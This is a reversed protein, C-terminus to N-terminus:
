EYRLAEMPDVKTASRAPLWCALLAVICLLVSIVTFTLPDTPSVNFLLSRMARGFAVAGALGAVIGLAVLAMGQRLVMGLVNRRQAGLAMRIGIEQTRQVVAYSIVGYLGLAAMFLAISAFTSLLTVAFRRPGLSTSLRESMPQLDYVAAQSPDVAKVSERM